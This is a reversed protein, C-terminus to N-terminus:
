QVLFNTSASGPDYGDKTATADVKYTGVGDRNTNVRHTFTAVGSTNTTGSGSFTRGNATTIVVSVAASSVPNTGDTVNVTITVTERNTYSSKDTTVSVSLAGSPPPPPPPPPPEAGGLYALAAYAQVLGYGYANDRGAPGLDEATQQLAERIQGNTWSSNASWVLAAVASVHPTAMSTGNWAEYGSAPKQVSSAVNGTSGLKNAVLYQGDEQSLSIAIITSTNGDGLTGFFNGSVNNYIVAAAGGSNQVNRVKDFFSIIGRECLVVKGSWAGITADCLGGNELAGSASGRAAFEIHNASYTVGDVTLSNNELFPVTSLVGVGPAALEVQNNQQSFDAVVKNEDIAAVSIVSSYSAPYSHSTNGANGAAAVHLIGNNNYLQNFANNERGNSRSGGLSMSIVNAGNDRCRYIADVLDSSLTWLGDDNFVKVIFLSVGPAVGIVGVNNDLGVITGAVHTGHGYGDTYWPTGVQSYGSANPLTPLDEHDRYYGSDVICVKRGVGTHGEDWVQPAQVMMVGYPITQGNAQLLSAVDRWAQGVSGSSYRPVDDEIAVVNPNRQLGQLAAGPLSVVFSDLEAFQYHFEGGASQLAGQVSAQQGPAFQVWVRLRDAPASLGPSFAGFTLALVLLAFIMFRTTHNM